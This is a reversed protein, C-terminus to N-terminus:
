LVEIAMVHQHTGFLLTSEQYQELSGTVEATNSVGSYREEDAEQLERGVLSVLCRAGHVGQDTLHLM